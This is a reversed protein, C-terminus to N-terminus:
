EGLTQRYPIRKGDHPLKKTGDLLFLNFCLDAAASSVTLGSKINKARKKTIDVISLIICANRSERPKWM